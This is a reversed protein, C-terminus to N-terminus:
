ALKKTKLLEIVDDTIEFEPKVFVIEMKGAVMDIDKGEIFEDIIASLENFTKFNLDDKMKHNRQKFDEDIGAAEEQLQGYRQEKKAKDEGIIEIGSSVSTIIKQMEDRLPILKKKFEERLNNIEGVGDLYPKYVSTLKEFDVVKINM